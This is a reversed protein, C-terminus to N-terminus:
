NSWNPGFPKKPEDLVYEGLENDYHCPFNSLLEHPFIVSEGTFINEGHSVLERKYTKSQPNKDIYTIVVITEKM